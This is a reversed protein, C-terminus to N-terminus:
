RQSKKKLSVTDKSSEPWYANCLHQAQKLHFNNRKSQCLVLEEYGGGAKIMVVLVAISVEPCRRLDVEELAKNKAWLLFIDSKKLLLKDM